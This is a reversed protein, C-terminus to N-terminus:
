DVFALENSMLLVQAYAAWGQDPERRLDFLFRRGLRLERASPPRAFVRRYLGDIRADTSRANAVEPHIALAESQALVFSNNLLYLSQQPVTTQTRQPSHLDPNPFDFARHLGSLTQRDVMGYVTRRHSVDGGTINVARGGLQEDLRGSAWLVSDRLPELELRRRNSRALLRNEPDRARAAAPAASSRRYAASTMILRHLRKLSWGNEVFSAALWDLLEPHTPPEGRTGFDSPTRVLGAGFHHAWVRNVMVRATLPNDRSTIAQALELRGSGTEFPTRKDGALVALFQRPVEPGPNDPNGRILVRPSVPAELDRVVMGRAPAGAHTADLQVLASELKRFDQKERESFLRGKFSFTRPLDRLPVQTPSDPGSLLGSLPGDAALLQAYRAAVDRHSRLPTATLARLLAPPVGAAVKVQLDSEASRLLTQWLRWVPENDQTALYRRWRDFVHRSLGRADVRKDVETERGHAVEAIASLYHGIEPASNLTTVIRRRRIELYQDIRAQAQARAEAYAQADPGEQTDEIVPLEQPEEVSAFVGYLSYYDKTPIPDYKHDHCRACSVTLGLLGRTVVDIDDDIAEPPRGKFRRGVTLFGLAALTRKDEKTPLLDAALQQAVFQDYPLDENFARIVWDRYTYAFPLRRDASDDTTDAYRAVDLWHRGWREGYRPSALLRDLLRDYARPDRDTVFAEVQDATPPVGVLDLFARRILTRRDAPPAPKLKHAALRQEVFWDIPHRVGSPPQSARVPLFAWHPAAPRSEARKETRPDV